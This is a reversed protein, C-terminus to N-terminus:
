REWRGRSMPVFGEKEAWELVRHPQSLRWTEKLLAEEEAKLRDIREEM